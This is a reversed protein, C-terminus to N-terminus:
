GGSPNPSAPPQISLHAHIDHELVKLVAYRTELKGLVDYQTIELQVKLRDGKGFRITGHEVGSLFGIDRIEAYFSQGNNFRWKNGDKFVAAEILVLQEIEQKNLLIEEQASSSIAMYEVKTCISALNGDVGARLDEIGDQELPKLMKTLEIRTTRDQYLKGTRLDVEITEEDEIILTFHNNKLQTGKVKRGRIKKLLAILGGGGLVGLAGLLTWGNALATAGESSFLDTFQQIFNQAVTLDIGFSGSKPKGVIDLRVEAKDGNIAANAAKLADALALLAPSLDRVDMQHSDLAPGEFSISFHQESM